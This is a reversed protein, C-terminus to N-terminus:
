KKEPFLEVEVYNNTNLYTKAAEQIIEPTLKNYYDALNFLTSLDEGYQYRISINTLLFGNTKSNTELDRLMTEKVDAFHKPTPGKAKFDEIDKLVAKVLEEVRSPSSGFSIELEYEERPIKSYSPSVSVGYTGGLDERLVERLRNELVDAMARLAVRNAQNYQFPGTFVMVTQSKPEIGKEVAKHVVGTVPKAGIDKWTENRHLAPLAGLYQEVLPKM